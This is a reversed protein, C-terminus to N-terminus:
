FMQLATDIFIYLWLLVKQNLKSQISLGLVFSRYNSQMFILRAWSLIVNFWDKEVESPVLVTMPIVHISTWETCWLSILNPFALNSLYTQWQRKSIWLDNHMFCLVCFSISNNNRPWFVTINGGKWGFSFCISDKPDRTTTLILGVRQIIWFYQLNWGPKIQNRFLNIKGCYVM